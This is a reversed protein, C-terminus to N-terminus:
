YASTQLAEVRLQCAHLVQFSNLYFASVSPVPSAGYFCSCLVAFLSLHRDMPHFFFPFSFDCGYDSCFDRCSFDCDFGCCSFSSFDSWAFVAIKSSPNHSSLYHAM